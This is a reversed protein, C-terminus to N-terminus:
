DPMKELEFYTHINKMRRKSGDGDPWFELFEPTSSGNGAIMEGLKHMAYELSEKELKMLIRRSEVCIEDDMALGLEVNIADGSEEWHSSIELTGQYDLDQMASLLGPIEGSSFVFTLFRGKLRVKM